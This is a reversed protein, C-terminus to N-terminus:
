LEESLIETRAEHAERLSADAMQGAQMILTFYARLQGIGIIGDDIMKQQEPAQLQMDSKSMVLRCAENVFYGEDIVDKFEKLKSLTRLADRLKITEEAQEITIEVQQLESQDLM